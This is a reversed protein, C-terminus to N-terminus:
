NSILSDLIDQYKGHTANNARRLRKEADAYAEEQEKSDLELLNGYTIIAEAINVWTKPDEEDHTIKLHEIAEKVLKIADNRAEEIIKEMENDIEEEDEDREYKYSNFLAIPEEAEMLYSQGIKEYVSRKLSKDCEQGLYEKYKLMNDRWFHNYDDNNKHKFLPHTESIEFDDIALANNIEEERNKTAIKEEKKGEKKNDNEEEDDEEDDDDDSDIVESINSGFKDIIDLLDDFNNLIELIWNEGFIEFNNTKKCLNIALNWTDIFNEFLEDIKEFEHFKSDITMRGIYEIAIKNLLINCKSFLLRINENNFKDFGEDIRDLANSIWDPIENEPKFKSIESLSQGYISYFNDNLKIDESGGNSVNNRLIRDCENIIGNLILENSRESDKWTKWLGNLEELPDNPNVENSLEVTLLQDQNTDNKSNESKNLETTKQKKTNNVKGLGLKRKAM